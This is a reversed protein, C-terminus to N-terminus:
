EVAEIQRRREADNTKAYRATTNPSRHGLQDQVFRLDKGANHLRTAFTHRFKHPWLDIGVARGIREVKDYLVHYDLRRGHAGIFLYEDPGAGPRFESVYETIRDCLWKRIDVARSIRGKGNAVFLAQKGHACPLDGIRLACLESARLGSLILTEVILYDTVARRSKRGLAQARVYERLTKTQEETLYDHPDLAGRHEIRTRTRM